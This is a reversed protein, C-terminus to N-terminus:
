ASCTARSIAADRPLARLHRIRSRSLVTQAAHDAIVAKFADLDGLAVGGAFRMEGDLVERQGQAVAPDHEGYGGLVGVLDGPRREAVMGLHQQLFLM